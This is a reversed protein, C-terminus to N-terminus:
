TSQNRWVYGIGSIPGECLAMMIDTTFIYGVAPGSFLGGKGSKVNQTRFNSYFVVNPALKQRGYCIPIPLTSVATQLQLGTYNPKTSTPSHGFLASM